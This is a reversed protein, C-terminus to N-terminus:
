RFHQCFFRELFSLTSVREDRTARYILDDIKSESGKGLLGFIGIAHNMNNNFALELMDDVIASDAESVGFTKYLWEEFAKVVGQEETIRSFPPIFWLFDAGPFGVWVPEYLTILSRVEGEDCFSACDAITGFIVGEISYGDVVIHPYISRGDVTSYFFTFLDVGGIVMSRDFAGTMTFIGDTRNFIGDTRHPYALGKESMSDTEPIVIEFPLLYQKGLMDLYESLWKGSFVDGM